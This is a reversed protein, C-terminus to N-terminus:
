EIKSQFIDTETQNGVVVLIFRDPHLYKKAVRQIDIKTVKKIQQVYDDAYNLGLRYFDITSYFNALKSTTDLRLPLSGTLYSRSEILEQDSVPELQIRRIEEIVKRIAKKASRNQTQLIVFFSGTDLFSSFRSSIHYALGQNDRIETMLRSSFGGRGLIYNMVKVSPYDPNNRSIGLHGLIINAQSINKQITKITKRELLLPPAMDPYSTLNKKWNGFYKKAIARVESETIDGVITLTTNQPQYYNKYFRLIDSRQINLLTKETGKIPYQFPHNTFLIQNFAKQAISRPNDKESLLLGVIRKKEKKIESTKFSPNLTIDSLVDFGIEIDKKLVRLTAWSFDRQTSVSLRGGVFEIDQSIEQGVRTLTGKQFLSATLHALGSQQEPDFRSGANIVLKATIIPLSHIEVLILKMGNPMFIRKPVWESAPSLTPWLIFLSGFVLFSFAKLISIRKIYHLFYILIIRM